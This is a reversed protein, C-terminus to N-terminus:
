RKADLITAYARLFRTRIEVPNFDRLVNRTNKSWRRRSDVDGLMARLTLALQEEDGLPVAVGIDYQRVIRAIEPQDSALVPIGAAVYEFLKNPLSLRLSDAVGEILCAGIDADATIPLLDDPPVTDVFKVREALGDRQIQGTLASRLSGEGLFVVSCEPVRRALSILYECGRGPKLFGQYLVIPSDAVLGARERLAGAPEVSTVDPVNPLVLPTHIGYMAALRRAISDNVTTVLAAKRIHRREVVGWFSSAWPRHRTSALHTYLERSDFVLAAQRDRATRAMAALMFLDSAHYARAAISQARLRAMRHIELFYGPGERKPTPLVHLGVGPLDGSVDEAAPGLTIAQVSYGASTLARLQRLARSNRRVDGTLAFLIDCHFDM